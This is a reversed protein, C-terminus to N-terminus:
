VEEAVEVLVGYERHKRFHEEGVVLAEAAAKRRDKRLLGRTRGAGLLLAAARRSPGDELGDVAQKIVGVLARALEQPDDSQARAKVCSLVTFAYLDDLRKALATATLGVPCVVQHMALALEEASPAQHADSGDSM